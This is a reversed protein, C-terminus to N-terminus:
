LPVLYLDCTDFVDSGLFFGKFGFLGFRHGGICSPGNAAQALCIGQGLTPQELANIAGGAIGTDASCIAFGCIWFGMVFLRDHRFQHGHRSGCEEGRCMGTEVLAFGAQMFMVLFGTVLTWIMNISLKNHAVNKM